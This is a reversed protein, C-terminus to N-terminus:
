SSRRNFIRGRIGRTSVQATRITPTATVEVAVETKPTEVAVKVDADSPSVAQALPAASVAVSCSGNACGSYTVGCSGGSCGRRFRGADAQQVALLMGFLALGVM